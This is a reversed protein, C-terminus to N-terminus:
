AHIRKRYEDRAVVTPQGDVAVVVHRFNRAAITDYDHGAESSLVGWYVLPEDGINVTRHATHGPVYVVVDKALPVAQCEGTQEDELLMMGQGALGIYVEAAPRWAHIHGKTMVYEDGVRGPNIIGLAYHLQGPGHDEEVNTVEYVVPDGGALLREYADADAFIGRLDSLHRTVPVYGEIGATRPDYAAFRWM